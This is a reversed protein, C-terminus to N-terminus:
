GTRLLDFSDQFWWVELHTFSYSLESNWLRSNKLKRLFSFFEKGFSNIFNGFIRKTTTLDFYMILGKQQHSFFRTCIVLIHAVRRSISTSVRAANWSSSFLNRVLSSRSPVHHTCPLCVRLLFPLPDTSVLFARPVLLFSRFSSSSPLSRPPNFYIDAVIAVATSKWVIRCALPAIANRSTFEDLLSSM